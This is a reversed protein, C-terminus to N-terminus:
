LRRYVQGRPAMKEVVIVMEGRDATFLIRLAGVRSSRLRYANKLPKSYSGDFPDAALLELREAIRVQTPRDLRDVYRQPQAAM